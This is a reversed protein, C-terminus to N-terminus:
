PCLCVEIWDMFESRYKSIHDSVYENSTSSSPIDIQWYRLFQQDDLNPLGNFGESDLTFVVHGLRPDRVLRNVFEPKLSVYEQGILKLKIAEIFVIMYQTEFLSLKPIWEENLQDYSSFSGRSAALSYNQFFQQNRRTTLFAIQLDRANM